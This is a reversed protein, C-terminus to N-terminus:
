SMSEIARLLLRQEEDRVEDSQPRPQEVVVLVELGLPVPLMLVSVWQKSVELM